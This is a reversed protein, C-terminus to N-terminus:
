AARPQERSSLALYAERLEQLKLSDTRGSAIRARAHVLMSRYKNKVEDVTASTPVGLIAYFRRTDDKQRDDKM